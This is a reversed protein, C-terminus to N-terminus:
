NLLAALCIIGVNVNEESKLLNVIFSIANM